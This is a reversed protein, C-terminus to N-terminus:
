IKCSSLRRCLGASFKSLLQSRLVPGCFVELAALVEACARCSVPHGTRVDTTGLMGYGCPIKDTMNTKSVTVLNAVDYSSM